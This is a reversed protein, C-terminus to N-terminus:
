RSLKTGLAQARRAIIGHLEELEPLHLQKQLRRTVLVLLEGVELVGDALEERTPATSTTTTM